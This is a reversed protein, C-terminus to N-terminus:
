PKEEAERWERVTKRTAEVFQCLECGCDNPHRDPSCANEGDFSRLAAELVLVFKEEPTAWSV